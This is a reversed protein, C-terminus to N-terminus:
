KITQGPEAQSISLKERNGTRCIKPIKNVGGRRDTINIYTSKMWLNPNNKGGGGGRQEGEERNNAFTMYPISDWKAEESYDMM